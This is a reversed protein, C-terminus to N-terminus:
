KCITTISQFQYECRTYIIPMSINLVLLEVWFIKAITYELITNVWRPHLHCYIWPDIIWSRSSLDNLAEKFPRRHTMSTVLQFRRPIQHYGLTVDNHICPSTVALSGSWMITCGILKVCARSKIVKTVNSIRGTNMYHMLTEESAGIISRCTSFRLAFQLM